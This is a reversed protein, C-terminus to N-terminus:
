TPRLGCLVVAVSAVFVLEPVSFKPKASSFYECAGCVVGGTSFIVM